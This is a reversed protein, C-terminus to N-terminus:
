RAKDILNQNFLLPCNLVNEIITSIDILKAKLETNMKLKKEKELNSLFVNV